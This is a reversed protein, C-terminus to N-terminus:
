ATALGDKELEVERTKKPKAAKGKVSREMFKAAKRKKKDERKMADAFITALKRSNNRILKKAKKGPEPLELNKLAEQMSDNILGRLAKKSTKSKEM